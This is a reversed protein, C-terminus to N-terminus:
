CNVKKYVSLLAWFYVFIFLRLQIAEYWNKLEVFVPNWIENM